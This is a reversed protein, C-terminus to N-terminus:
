VNKMWHRIGRQYIRKVRFAAAVIEDTTDFTLVLRSGLKLKMKKALKKGIM